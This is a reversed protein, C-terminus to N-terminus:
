PPFGCVFGQHGMLSTQDRPSSMRRKATARALGISRQWRFRRRPHGVLVDLSVPDGAEATRPPSCALWLGQHEVYM